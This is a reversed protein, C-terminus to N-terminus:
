VAFKAVAPTWLMTAWYAPSAVWAAEVPETKTDMAPVLEPLPVKVSAAVLTVTVCPLEPDEVM